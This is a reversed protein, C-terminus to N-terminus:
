AVKGETKEEKKVKPKLHNSWKLLNHAVCILGWEVRIKSLGRLMFPNFGRNYKIQGFVPEVDCKRRR